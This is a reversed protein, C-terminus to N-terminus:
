ALSRAIVQELSRNRARYGESHRCETCISVKSRCDGCVLHGEQCQYIQLPPSLSELCVPCEPVEVAEVEAKRKRRTMGEVEGELWALVSTEQEEMQRDIEAIMEGYRETVRLRDSNLDIQLNEEEKRHREKLCILEARQQSEERVQSLSEALHRDKMQEMEASQKELLSEELVKNTRSMNELEEEKKREAERKDERLVRMLIKRQAVRESVSSSDEQTNERKNPDQGQQLRSIQSLLGPDAQKARAIDLVTERSDNEANWDVKRALSPTNVFFDLNEFRKFAAALMVPTLGMKDRQNFLAPPIRSLDRDRDLILVRGKYSSLTHLFNRGHKDVHRLVEQPGQSIHYSIKLRLHSNSKTVRIVEQLHSRQLVERKSLPRKSDM